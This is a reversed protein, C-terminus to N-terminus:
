TFVVDPYEKSLDEIQDDAEEYLVSLADMWRLSNDKTLHFDRMLLPLAYDRELNGTPQLVCVPKYGYAESLDILQRWNSLYATIHERVFEPHSTVYQASVAHPAKNLGLAVTTATTTNKGHRWRTNVAAYVRSRNLIVRWLPAQHEERYAEWAEVMTQFNYPFNSRSEYTLPLGIDNAGDYLIVIDPEYQGVTFVLHAISQRSVCSQIAANIVEIDRDPDKQKLLRKLSGPLTTDFTSGLQVASAGLCAIRLQTAPKKKPIEYDHSPARFGDGNTYHFIRRTFHSMKHTEDTEYAMRAHPRFMVYPYLENYFPLIARSRAHYALYAEALFVALVASLLVLAPYQLAGLRKM